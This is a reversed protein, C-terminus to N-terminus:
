LYAISQPTFNESWRAVNSIRFEDISGPFYMIAQPASNNKSLGITTTSSTTINVSSTATGISTGNAYHTYATGERVLAYHTWANLPISGSSSGVGWFTGSEIGQFGINGSANLNVYWTVASGTTGGIIGGRRPTTGNDYSTPYLWCDITWDGGAISSMNFGTSQVWDGNGDFLLSADGFKDRGTSVQANGSASWSFSGGAASDTITTSGNSGEGHLLVKTNSDNVQPPITPHHGGQTMPMFM